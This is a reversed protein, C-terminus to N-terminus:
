AGVTVVTGAPANLDVTVVLQGSTKALVAPGLRFDDALASAAAIATNGSADWYVDDGAAFTISTGCTAEGKVPTAVQSVKVSFTARCEVAGETEYFIANAQDLNVIISIPQSAYSGARGFVSFMGPLVTDNIQQEFASLAM